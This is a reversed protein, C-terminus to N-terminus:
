MGPFTNLAKYLSYSGFASTCLLYKGWKVTSSVLAKFLSLSQGLSVSCTHTLAVVLTASIYFM